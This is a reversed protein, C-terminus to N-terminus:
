AKGKTTRAELASCDPCRVKYRGTPAKSKPYSRVHGCDLYAFVTSIKAGGNGKGNSPHEAIRFVSRWISM